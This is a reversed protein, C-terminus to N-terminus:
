MYILYIIKLFIKHICVTLHNFLKTEFLEIQCLDVFNFPKLFKPGTM